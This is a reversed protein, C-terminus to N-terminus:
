KNHEDLEGFYRKALPMEAANPYLKLFELYYMKAKATNGLRLDYIRALRFLTIRRTIGKAIGIAYAKELHEICKVYDRSVEIYFREIYLHIPVTNELPGDYKALFDEICAFAQKAAQEDSNKLYRTFLSEAIYIAAFAAKEDHPVMKIIDRYLEDVNFGNYEPHQRRMQLTQIVRAYGMAAEARIKKDLTKDDYLKKLGALGEALNQKKLDHIQCFHFILRGIPDALHKQALRHARTFNSQCYADIIGDINDEVAAQSSSSIVFSAIATIGTFVLAAIVFIFHKSLKVM